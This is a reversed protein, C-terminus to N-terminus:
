FDEALKEIEEAPMAAIENQMTGALLMGVYAGAQDFLGCGSMGPLAVADGYILGEGLEEIERDPDLIQGEYIRPMAPESALDVMFFFDGKKLSRSSRELAKIQELTQRSVQQRGISVVGMDLAEGANLPKVEGPVSEGNFFTVYSEGDWDTIVHGATVILIERDTIRLICGSGHHGGTQIRVSCALVKEPIEGMHQEWINKQAASLRCATFLFAAALLFLAAAQIIRKKAM